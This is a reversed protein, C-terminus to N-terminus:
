EFEMESASPLSGAWWQELVRAVFRFRHCWAVLEDFVVSDLVAGLFRCPM